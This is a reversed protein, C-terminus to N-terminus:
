KERRSPASPGTTGTIFLHAPPSHRRAVLKRALLYAVLGGMSHGYLGYANGDAKTCIQEYLGDVLRPRDPELRESRRNGRGPYELTQIKLFAPAVTEFARYAYKSGGAYPLCFLTIASSM